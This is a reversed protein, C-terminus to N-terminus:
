ELVMWLGLGLVVGAVVWPNFGDPVLSSLDFQSLDFGASAGSDSSGAVASLPDSPSLGLAAALNAAYTVPDNSGDGAPAYKATFQSITLGRSADLAVQNELAQFGTSYDPFLCFGGSGPQCGPQGAPRLNGPNNNRYSLSGPFWGEQKQIFQAAAAYDSAASLGALGLAAMGIFQRRSIQLPGRRVYM